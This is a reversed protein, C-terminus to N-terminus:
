RRSNDAANTTANTEPPTRPECRLTVAVGVVNGAGVWTIQPAQLNGDSLNRTGQNMRLTGDIIDFRSTMSGAFTSTVAPVTRTFACVCLHRGATLGTDAAVNVTLTTVAAGTAPTGIPGTEFEPDNTFNAVCLGRDTAAASFTATFTQATTPPTQWHCLVLAVGCGNATTQTLITYKNGASASDVVSSLTATGAWHVSMIGMGQAVNTTPSVVLTTASAAAVPNGRATLWSPFGIALRRRTQVLPM